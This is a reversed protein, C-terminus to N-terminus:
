KNDHKTAKTMTIMGSAIAGALATMGIRIQTTYAGPAYDSLVEQYAISIYLLAFYVCIGVLFYIPWFLRAALGRGAKFSWFAALGFFSANAFATVFGFWDPTM